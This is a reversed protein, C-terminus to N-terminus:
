IGLPIALVSLMRLDRVVSDASADVHSSTSAEVVLLRGGIQGCVELMSKAVDVWQDTDLERPNFASLPLSGNDLDQDMWSSPGFHVFMGMELRQWALQDPTPRATPAAATEIPVSSSVTM